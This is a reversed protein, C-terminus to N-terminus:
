IGFLNAKGRNQPVPVPIKGEEVLTRDLGKYAGSNLLSVNFPNNAESSSVGGINIRTAVPVTNNQRGSFYLFTILVLLILVIVGLTSYAVVRLNQSTM